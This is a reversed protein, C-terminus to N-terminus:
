GKLFDDYLPSLERIKEVSKSLTELLKVIDADTTERGLSFRVAGNAQEHSLGMSMLVHSPELSLASCASGTSAQFGHMDLHLLLAEGEIFRFSVNVNSPLRNQLSGNLQTHPIKTLIGDVLKDRLKTLRESEETMEASIITLAASMGIIGPVNETGARRNREQAGGHFLQSIKTGKRVYLSGIGKPGHFKHASLSLMDVGLSDVNVPIHGVAQVADTHLPISHAQTIKSIEAIPQIAGVENNALMLTVLCTEPRIAEEVSQPSVFGNGDVPLYTVEYGEQELYRCVHFIGHHEISSTIIHGKPRSAEIVGKIAWNDAETGGATFFIEEASAGILTAINRRADDIASRVKQAPRYVSSPNYYNETLYPMMAKLADPHLSTTAANDLYIM